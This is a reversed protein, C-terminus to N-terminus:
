LGRLRITQGGIDERHEDAGEQRGVGRRGRGIPRAEVPHVGNRCDAALEGSLTNLFRPQQELLVGTM